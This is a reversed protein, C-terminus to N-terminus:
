SSSADFAMHYPLLVDESIKIHKIKNFGFMKAFLSSPFALTRKIFYDVEDNYRKRTVFLHDQLPIYQNKMSAFGTSLNKDSANGLSTEFETFLNKVQLTLRNQSNEFAKVLDPELPTKASIVQNLIATASELAQNIPSVPYQPMTKQTTEVLKPLLELRYTCADTMYTKAAGIRNEARYFNTYGGAFVCFL